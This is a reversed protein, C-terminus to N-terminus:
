TDNKFLIRSGIAAILRKPSKRKCYTAFDLDRSFTGNELAKKARSKKGKEETFNKEVM